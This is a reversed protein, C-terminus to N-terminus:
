VVIPSDLVIREGETIEQDITALPADSDGVVITPTELSGDHYVQVRDAAAEAVRLVDQPGAFDANAIGEVPLVFTGDSATRTMLTTHKLRVVEDSVPTGSENKVAGQLLTTGTPFSYATSPYVDVRKAVTTEDVRVSREAYRDPPNIEVTLTGSPREFPPDLFLWYGTPNLLPTAPMGEISVTAAGRLPRDTYADIPNVALALEVTRKAVGQFRDAM